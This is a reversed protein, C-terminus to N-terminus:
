MASARMPYPNAYQIVSRSPFLYMLAILGRFDHLSTSRNLDVATGASFHELVTRLASARNPNEKLFITIADTM